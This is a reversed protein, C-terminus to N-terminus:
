DRPEVEIRGADGPMRDPLWGPRYAISFREIEPVERLIAEAARPEEGALAEALSRREEDDLVARAEAEAAVRLRVGDERGEVAVSEEFTISVPDLEYGAPAAAALRGALEEEARSRLADADYTLATVPRVARLRVTAADDGVDHDFEETGEGVEFSAPLVAEGDPLKEAFAARALAPLQEEARARLADLDAEAVTRIARDSGGQTPGDRNSYYVGSPLRGGIAGPEVNGAAGARVARVTGEAEGIVGTAPDGAPVEVDEVFSFEVGEETAVVTGKEVTVEGATPNRLRVKGAAVQDPEARTGTTPIEGEFTVDVTVPEVPIASAGDGSREGSATEYTVEGRVPVRKLVVAVEARPLLVYVGAAALAVAAVAVGM